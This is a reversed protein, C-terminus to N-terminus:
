FFDIGRRLILQFVALQVLLAALPWLTWRLPLAGDPRVNAAFGATGQVCLIGVTVMIVPALYVQDASGPVRFPVILILAILAPLTAIGVMARSRGGPTALQETYADLELFMRALARGILVMAVVAVSAVVWKVGQSLRLYELAMGVDNQPLFAGIVFQPLAEFSGYLTPRLGPTLAKPVVLFLEQIFFILNFAFACLLASQIVPIWDWRLQRTESLTM